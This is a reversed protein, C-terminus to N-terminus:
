LRGAPVARCDPWFYARGCCRCTGDPLPLLCLEGPLCAALCAALAPLCPQATRWILEGSRRRGGGGGGGHPAVWRDLRAVRQKALMAGLWRQFSLLQDFLRLGQELEATNCQQGQEEHHHQQQQSPVSLAHQTGGAAAPSDGEGAEAAVAEAAALLQQHLQQAAQTATLAAVQEAAAAAAHQWAGQSPQGIRVIGPAAVDAAGAPAGPQGLLQGLRGQM